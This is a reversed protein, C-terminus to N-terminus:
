SGSALIEVRAGEGEFSTVEIRDKVGADILYARVVLARALAVKRGDPGAGGAFGRLEIPHLRKDIVRKAIRDLEARTDDTLNASQGTFVITTLPAQRPAAPSATPPEAPKAAVEPAAAGEPRDAVQVLPSVPPEAFIPASTPTVPPTASSPRARLTFRESEPLVRSELPAPPPPRLHLRESSPSGAFAVHAPHVVVGAADGSGEALPMCAALVAGPILVALVLRGGVSCPM